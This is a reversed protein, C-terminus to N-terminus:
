LKIQLTEEVEATLRANDGIDGRVSSVRNAMARM